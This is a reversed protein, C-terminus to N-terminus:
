FIIGSTLFQLSKRGKVELEIERANDDFDDSGRIKLVYRKM